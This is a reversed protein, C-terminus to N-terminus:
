DFRMPMQLYIKNSNPDDATIVCPRTADSLNMICKNCSISGLVNLIKDANFGITIEGDAEVPINEVSKKNFDLDQASIEMNNNSIEFKLLRSMSSAGLKCRNIANITKERDIKAKIPSETPIVSKFNPYRGDYQRALVSTGGCSIMVHNKGIRMRVEDGEACVDCVSAFARKNLVFSFDDVKYAENDTFLSMGDSACCGLEGDKSYFYIGNMIPRLEDNGAFGRADIIWNNLLAADMTIVSSDDDAKLVPFEDAKYLPLSMKGNDHSIEIEDDTITMYIVDSSILKIYSLLDKHNVCFVVDDSTNEISISKNIANENDCSVIKMKGDSVKIKVCELIPLVKSKSAFAGGIILAKIFDTKNVSIKTM